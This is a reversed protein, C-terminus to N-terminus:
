KTSGSPLGARARHPGVTPGSPDGPRFFHNKGFNNRSSKPHEFLHKEATKLGHHRTKPWPFDWFEKFVPRKPVLFPDFIPSFRTKGFTIWSWEPHEFLHNQGMKLGHHRTKAWPFDESRWCQWM